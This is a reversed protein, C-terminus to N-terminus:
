FIEDITYKIRAKDLLALLVDWEESGGDKALKKGKWLKADEGLKLLQNLQIDFVEILIADSKITYRKLGTQTIEVRYGGSGTMVIKTGETLVEKATEFINMITNILNTCEVPNSGAYDENAVFHM